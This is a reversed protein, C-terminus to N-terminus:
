NSTQEADQLERWAGPLELECHSAQDYLVIEGVKTLREKVFGRLKDEYGPDEKAPWAFPQTMELALRAHQKAPLFVPYSLRMPEQQSLSGDTKLKSLIVVGSGAELQYDSETTNELDYSITLTSHAKDTERLQSAVYTAKIADRNWSKPTNGRSGKFAAAGMMFVMLLVLGAGALCAIAFYMRKSVVM